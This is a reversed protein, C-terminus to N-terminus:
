EVELSIDVDVSGEDNCDVQFRTYGNSDAQVITSILSADGTTEIELRGAGVGEGVDGFTRCLMEVRRGDRLAKLPIPATIAVPQPVPYYGTIKSLCAGDTDDPVAEFTLFRRTIPDWSFHIDGASPVPTHLTSIVEGTVYDVLNMIGQVSIVWCRRNDEPMINAPTGSVQIIRILDGTTWDFTRITHLGSDDSTYAVLLNQVRDVMPIYVTTVGFESSNRVTDALYELTIPDKQYFTTLAIAWVSGDPSQFVDGEFLSAPNSGVEIFAGTKANFRWYVREYGPWYIMETTGAITIVADGDAATIDRTVYMGNIAASGGYISEAYIRPATVLYANYLAQLGTGSPIGARESPLRYPIPVTEFIKKFM